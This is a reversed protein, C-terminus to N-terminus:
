QFELFYFIFDDVVPLVGKMLSSGQAGTTTESAGVTSAEVVRRSTPGDV